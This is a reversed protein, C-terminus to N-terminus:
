DFQKNENKVKQGLGEVCSDMLSDQVTERNPVCFSKILSGVLRQCDKHETLRLCSQQVDSDLMKQNFRAQYEDQQM